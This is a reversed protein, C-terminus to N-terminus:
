RAYRSGRGSGSRRLLGFQVLAVLDRRATKGSVGFRAMLDARRIAGYQSVLGLAERQRLTLAPLPAEGGDSPRGCAMPSRPVDDLAPLGLDQPQIWETEVFIM